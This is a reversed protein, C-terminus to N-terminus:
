AFEDIISSENSSKESINRTVSHHSESKHQPQKKASEEAKQQILQDLQAQTALIQVQILKAKAQGEKTPTGIAEQLDKQLSVLKRKLAEISSGGGGSSSRSQSLISPMSVSITMLIEYNNIYTELPLIEASNLTEKSINHM